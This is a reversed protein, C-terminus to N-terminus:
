PGPTLSVCRFGFFPNIWNVPDGSHRFASRCDNESGGWSGGRVVRYCSASPGPGTPNTVPASSYDGYWDECWQFVNGAMDLAGCWSVGAPFSGVPRTSINPTFSLSYACKTPDFGNYLDSATATGGWPYNRAQPGRAAYEWQAETPLQVGAWAAYAHADHWTIDVIPHQQLLPDDWGSKGAWSYYNMPWPPRAHGTAACFALYQAVTVDYKYIWYGTLTVQHAPHENDRGVGDPSGMTFTAGPVWVMEAADTPNTVPTDASISPISTNGGGGCGTLLLGLSFFLLLTLGLFQNSRM